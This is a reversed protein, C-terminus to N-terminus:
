LRMQWGSLNTSSRRVSATQSPRRGVSCSSAPSNGSGCGAASGSCSESEHPLLPWDLSGPKVASSKTLPRNWGEKCCRFSMKISAREWGHRTGNWPGCCRYIPCKMTSSYTSIWSVPESDQTRPLALSARWASRRLVRCGPPCTSSCVQRNGAGTGAASPPRMESKM